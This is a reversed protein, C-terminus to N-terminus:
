INIQISSGTANLLDIREIVKEKLSLKVDAKLLCEEHFEQNLIVLEFDKVL